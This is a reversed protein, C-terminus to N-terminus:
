IRTTVSVQQGYRVSVDPNRWTLRIRGNMPQSRGDAMVHQVDVLLIVGNPTLRVPAVIAGQITHPQETSLSLLPTDLQSMAAWHAQGMGTIILAFVLVGGWRSLSERQERWTLLLGFSFLAGLLSLPFFSLFPGFWLGVLYAVVGYVIM